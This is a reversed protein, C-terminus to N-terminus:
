AYKCVLLVSYMYGNNKYVISLYELVYKISSYVYIYYVSLKLISYKYM